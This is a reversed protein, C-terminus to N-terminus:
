IYLHEDEHQILPVTNFPRLSVATVMPVTLVLAKPSAGRLKMVGLEQTNVGDTTEFGAM